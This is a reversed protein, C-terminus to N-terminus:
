RFITRKTVIECSRLHPFAFLCFLRVFTLSHCSVRWDFCSLRGRLTRPFLEYARKVGLRVTIGPKEEISKTGSGNEQTAAEELSAAPVDESGADPNSNPAEDAKGEDVNENTASVKAAEERPPFPAFTWSTPLRLERGTLGTLKWYASGSVASSTDTAQSENDGPVLETVVCETSVDVDGSGTCDVIDILKPTTGDLMTNISDSAGPDIGTDFIGVRVNRGDYLPNNKVFALAGTEKKPVLDITPFKLVNSTMTSPIEMTPASDAVPASNDPGATAPADVAIMKGTVLKQRKDVSNFWPRLVAAERRRQFIKHDERVRSGFFAAPEATLVFAGRRSLGTGVGFAKHVRSFVIGIRLSAVTEPPGSFLLSNLLFCFWLIAHPQHSSRDGRRTWFRTRQSVRQLRPLSRM